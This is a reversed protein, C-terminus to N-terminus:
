KGKIVVKGTPSYGVIEPSYMLQAKTSPMVFEGECVARAYYSYEYLGTWARNRFALVRDNRIEFFNPTFRYYGAPDWYWESWEVGEGFEGESADDEGDEEGEEGESESARKKATKAINHEETKIASNIAVFGAPLPDDVVVYNAGAHKVNIRLKVEVIDGVRITNSGDTNRITKHVEFGNSYGNKSYDTRPFTLSLRYLITQDGTSSIAVGPSRLFERADLDVTKFSKPDLTFSEVVRGGQKVTVTAPRSDGSGTTFYDSLAVLSWGTDSTSTWIGEPSMGGILRSAMRDAIEEGRFAANAALLSIAPERYRAYFEGSFRDLLWPRDLLPKMRTRITDDPMLKSLKASMLVLMAAERPQADLGEAAKNFTERDLKNNLALIYVAFGRFTADHRGSAKVEDQLYALAKDMRDKPLDYGALKARTLATLAYISGWYHPTRDGPWYGFGGASTQMSFLRDIGPRIFKDTEAGSIGPILGKAVSEKLAALPLVGSSTQEVCGYPYRLLYQLGATMRLYPSGSVMLEAKVEGPGTDEWTLDQVAKPM